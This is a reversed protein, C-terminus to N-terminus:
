SNRIVLKRKGREERMKKEVRRWAARVRNVQELPADLEGYHVAVYAETIASVDDTQEPFKQELRPLFEYPTEAVRRPLGVAAARAVLAAYIRRISAAAFHQVFSRRPRPKKTAGRRTHEAADDVGISERIYTEDELRKMRRHLARALFYAAIMLAIPMILMKITNEVNDWLPSEPVTKLTEQFESPFLSTLDVFFQAVKDFLPKLLEVLWGVLYGGPIALILVIGAVLFWIPALPVLLWRATEPNFFQLIGLGIFLVLAIGGFITVVWRPGYRMESGMEEIRALAIALLSVFFYVFVWLTPDFPKTLMFPRVIGAVVLLMFFVVIGLRFQFGVFWLTLPRQAFGLGRMFVYLVGATVLHETAIGRTISLIAVLTRPLWALDHWEFAPFLEVRIVALVTVAAIGLAIVQLAIWQKRSQPLARGIVLAIWYAAFFPFPTLPRSQDLQAALFEVGAFVWCTEMAALLALRLERSLNLTLLKLNFTKM